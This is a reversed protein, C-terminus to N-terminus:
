VVLLNLVFSGFSTDHIPYVECCERGYDGEGADSLGRCKLFSAWASQGDDDIDIGRGYDDGDPMVCATKRGKVDLLGLGCGVDTKSDVPM